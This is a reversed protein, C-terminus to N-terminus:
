IDLLLHCLRRMIAPSVSVCLGEAMGVAWAVGPSLVLCESGKGRVGGKESCDQVASQLLSGKVTVRVELAIM